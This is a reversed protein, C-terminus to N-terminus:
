AGRAVQQARRRSAKSLFMAAATGLCFVSFIVPLLWDLVTPTELVLLDPRGPVHFCLVRKGPGYQTPMTIDDTMITQEADFSAGNPLELRFSVDFPYRSGSSDVTRSSQISTVTCAAHATAGSLRAARWAYYGPIASVVVM